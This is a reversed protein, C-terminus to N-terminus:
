LTLWQIAHNETSFVKVIFGNQKNVESAFLQSLATNMPMDVILAQKKGNIIPSIGALFDCILDIETFAMKFESARYDSLLNYRKQTFEQSGLFVDWAAGIDEKKIIGTHKYFILKNEHDFEITFNM